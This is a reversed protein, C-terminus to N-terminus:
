CQATEGTLLYETETKMKNQFHLSKLSLFESFSGESTVQLQHSSQTHRLSVLADPLETPAQLVSSSSLAEM